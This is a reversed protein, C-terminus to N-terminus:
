IKMNNIKNMIVPNHSEETRANDNAMGSSWLQHSSWDSIWTIDPHNFRKLHGNNKVIVLNVKM